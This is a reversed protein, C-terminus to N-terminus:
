PRTPEPGSRGRGHRTGATRAAPRRPRTGERLGRSGANLPLSPRLFRELERRTPMSTQAGHRTVSLTAALFATSVASPIPDAKGAALGAALAGCFTDGAATSDVARVPVAPFALVQDGFAFMFGREGATVVVLRGDRALRRAAAEPNGLGTLEAAELENPVLFDSRRLLSPPLRQAPAPNLIVFVGPGTKGIIGAVAALPIELQLLLIGKRLRRAPVDSSRMRGNAGPCVSIVNAGRDDVLIAARGTPARRDVKVGSVDIGERKLGAVLTRGAADDGVRGFFAVDGGMRAAAVAQNAGKGGPVETFTDAFVTEGPRPLRTGRFVLDLNASGVVTIPIRSM